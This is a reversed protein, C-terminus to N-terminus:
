KKIIRTVPQIFVQQGQYSVPLETTCKELHALSVGVMECSFTYLVKVERLFTGKENFLLKQEYYNAILKSIMTIIEQYLKDMQIINHHYFYDFQNNFYSTTKIDLKDVKRKVGKLWMASLYVGKYNTIIVSLGCQVLEGKDTKLM